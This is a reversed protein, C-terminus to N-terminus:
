PVGLLKKMDIPKDDDQCTVGDSDYSISKDQLGTVKAVPLWVIKRITMDYMWILYGAHNGKEMAGKLAMFQHVKEPRLILSKINFRSVGCVKADFFLGRGAVSGAFDCDTKRRFSKGGRAQEIHSPIRTLFTDRGLNIDRMTRKEFERWKTTM